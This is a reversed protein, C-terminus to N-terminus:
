GGILSGSVADRMGACFASAYAREADAVLERSAVGGNRKIKSLAHRRGIRYAIGRLLGMNRKM